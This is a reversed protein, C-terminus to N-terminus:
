FISFRFHLSPFFDENKTSFYFFSRMHCIVDNPNLFFGIQGELVWVPKWSVKTFYYKWRDRQAYYDGVYKAGSAAFTQFRLYKTPFNWVVTLKNHCLSAWFEYFQIICFWAFISVVKTKVAKTVSSALIIHLM